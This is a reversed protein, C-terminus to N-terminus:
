FKIFCRIDLLNLNMKLLELHIARILLILISTIVIAFYILGDLTLLQLYSCDLAGDWCVVNAPKGFLSIGSELAIQSMILRGHLLDNIIEVYQRLPANELTLIPLGITFILIVLYCGVQMIKEFVCINKKRLLYLFVIYAFTNSLLGTYSLSYFFVLVNGVMICMICKVLEKGERQLLFLIGITIFGYTIQLVNPHTYDFNHRILPGLGLKEHVLIFGERIGLLALFMKIVFCISWLVVGSLFVDKENIGKMGVVLTMYLLPAIEGSEHYIILALCLLIVVVGWEMWTKNELFLKMGICAFAVALGLTYLRQGEQLGVAKVGSMILWYLFFLITLIKENIKIKM